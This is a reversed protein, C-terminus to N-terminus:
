GRIKGRLTAFATLLGSGLLLFSSPEPTSGGGGNGIVDFAGATVSGNSTWTAGGDKSYMSLETAGQNNDNWVEFTTDSVNMPGLVLWYSEGATLTLGSIGTISVLGCCGPNNQSSSLNDWRDVLSGLGGNNDAYLAAYFSNEGAVYGVAIDIQTVSGSALASFQYAQSFSTGLFGTGSVARGNCCDYIDGSSGLDNFFTTSDALAPLGTLCLVLALLVSSWV